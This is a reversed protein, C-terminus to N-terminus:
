PPPAPMSRAMPLWSPGSWECDIATTSPRLALLKGVQALEDAPDDVRHVIWHCVMRVNLTGAREARHMTALAEASLAM